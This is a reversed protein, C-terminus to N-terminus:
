IESTTLEDQTVWPLKPEAAAQALQREIQGTVQAEGDDKLHKTVTTTTNDIDTLTIIEPAFCWDLVQQETLQGYEIFTDGLTLNKIGSAFAALNNVDDAGQVLWEVTTVVNAKNNQQTVKVKNVSWKFTIAM